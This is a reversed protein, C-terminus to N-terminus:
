IEKNQIDNLKKQIEILQEEISRKNYEKKMIKEDEEDKEQKKLIKPRTPKPLIKQLKGIEIKTEKIKKLLMQKLKNENFRGVSYNNIQQAIKLLTIQSSLIEKKAKIAEDKELKIHIFNKEPM